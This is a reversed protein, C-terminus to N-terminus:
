RRARDGETDLFFGLDIGFSVWTAADGSGTISVTNYAAQVGLSFLQALSFDLGGGLNTAPGVRSDGVFGVGLHAFFNPQLFSGFGLRLGGLATGAHDFYALDNGRGFSTYHGGLEPQLFFSTVPFRFRYGFRGGAGLSLPIRRRLATAVDLGLDVGIVPEAGVQTTSTLIATLAFAPTLRLLASRRM